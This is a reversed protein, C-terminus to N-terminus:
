LIKLGSAKLKEILSDFDIRAVMVYAIGDDTESADIPGCNNRAMSRIAELIEKAAKREDAMEAEIISTFVAKSRQLFIVNGEEIIKEAAREAPTSPTASM